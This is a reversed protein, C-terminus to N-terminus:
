FIVVINDHVVTKRLVRTAGEMTSQRPYWPRSATQMSVVERERERERKM